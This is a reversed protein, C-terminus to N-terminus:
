FFIKKLPFNLPSIIIKKKKSSILAIQEVFKKFNWEFIYPKAYDEDDSDLATNSEIKYNSFFDSHGSAFLDSHITSLISNGQNLKKSEKQFESPFNKDWLSM